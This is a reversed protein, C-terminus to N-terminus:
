RLETSDDIKLHTNFLQFVEPYASLNFQPFVIGGNVNFRHYASQGAGPGSLIAKQPQIRKHIILKGTSDRRLKGGSLNEFEIVLTGDHMLRKSGPVALLFVRGNEEALSLGDLYDYDLARADARTALTGAFTWSKGGDVSVILILHGPADPAEASLSMYLKSDKFLAGPESYAVVDRLSDDLTNLNVKTVNYPAQPFRGAGFLPVEDSWTGAPDSACRYAVGSLSQGDPM